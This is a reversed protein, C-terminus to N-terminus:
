VCRTKLSINLTHEPFKETILPTYLCYLCRYGVCDTFERIIDFFLLFYIKFILLQIDPQFQINPAVLSSGISTGRRLLTDGSSPTEHLRVLRCKNHM